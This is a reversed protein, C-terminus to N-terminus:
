LIEEAYQELVSQGNVEVAQRKDSLPALSLKPEARVVLPDIAEKGVIKELKAPSLLKKEYLDDGLDSFLNEVVSEDAWARNGRRGQVLKYGEIIDGNLARSLAYEAVSDFFPKVLPMLEMVRRIQEDTLSEPEPLEIKQVPVALSTNMAEAIGHGLAPCICRGACWKCAKESPHYEADPSSTADVAPILVNDRFSLLESIPIEWHTVGSEECRPQVISLRVTDFKDVGELGLVGLAYYQLQLNNEAYVPQGAGYKLDLIYLKRNATDAISADCTGWMGKRGIWDLNFKTEVRVGDRINPNYKKSAILLIEKVYVAVYDAMEQTVEFAEGAVTIYQGVFHKPMKLNRISMEALEHAATGENAFSSAKPKPAKACLAVSAPCSMWRYASSAGLGSHTVPPM